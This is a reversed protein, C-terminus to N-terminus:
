VIIEMRHKKECPFRMSVFLCVVRHTMNWMVSMGSINSESELAKLNIQFILFYMKFDYKTKYYFVTHTSFRLTHVM